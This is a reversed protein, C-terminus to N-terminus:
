SHHLDSEIADALLADRQHLPVAGYRQRFTAAGTRLSTDDLMRRVVARWNVPRPLASANIGAGLREVRRSMLFQELQAPLMLCPVGHMLSQAVTSHNGYNVTFACAPLAEHLAVPGKSYVISAHVVPPAMGAAVEPMYCLVACGEEALARLMAHAGPQAHRMYCFVRPGDSAPWGAAGGNLASFEPGYWHPLADEPREYHDLEPWSCMLPLGANLVDSAWRVPAAGHLALVRNVSDLLRAETARLRDPAIQEWPRLSPLAVGAPPMFFGIGLMAMRLGLTRAAIAASPAYDGVVYDPQLTSFISRWGTVLGDLADPVLYGCSLLIEAMSAQEAPLGETKHMWVPAQLKPLDLDRLVTHTHVLERLSLSVRHGRRQLELALGKLRVAHGLGGGLEWCLHIHAM